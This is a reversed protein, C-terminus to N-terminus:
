LREVLGRRDERLERVDVVAIRGRQIIKDARVLLPDILTCRSKADIRDTERRGRVPFFETRANAGPMRAKEHEAFIEVVVRALDRRIRAVFAARDGHQIKRQLLFDLVHELMRAAVIGCEFRCQKEFISRIAIRVLQDREVVIVVHRSQIGAVGTEDVRM